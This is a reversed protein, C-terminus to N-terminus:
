GPRDLSAVHPRHDAITTGWLRFQRTQWRSEEIQGRVSMEDPRTSRLGSFRELQWTKLLTFVRSIQLM